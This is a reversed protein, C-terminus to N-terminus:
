GRLGRGRVSARSLRNSLVSEIALLLLAGLLLYRWLGQLKERDADTLDRSVPAGPSNGPGATVAAVIERPDMASLDSEAADVNAAAVLPTSLPRAAPRVEYFGPEGIKIAAAQAVRERAGNPSVITLGADGASWGGSDGLRELAIVSGVTFSSPRETYGSVYRVLEHVFPLFVPQLALDNWYPDLTSSWLLVRGRGVSREVLAPAGDDFRALVRSEAAPETERYRLFRASAFDGGRPAAFPQFVPHSHDLESVIGGDGFLRDVVGGIRAPLLPSGGTSSGGGEGAAVILGGGKRVFEELVREAAGFTAIDHM